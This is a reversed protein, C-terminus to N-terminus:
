LSKLPVRMIGKTLESKAGTAVAILGQCHGCKRCTEHEGGFGPKWLGRPRQRPPKSHRRGEMFGGGGILGDGGALVWAGAFADM